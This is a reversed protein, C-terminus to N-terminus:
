ITLNDYTLYYVHFHKTIRASYHISDNIFKAEPKIHTLSMDKYCLSKYLRIRIHIYCVWILMDMYCISIYLCIRIAYPYIYSYLM